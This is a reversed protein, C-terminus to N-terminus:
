KSQTFLPAGVVGQNIKFVGRPLGKAQPEFLDGAAQWFQTDAHYVALYDYGQILEPLKKDCTWVDGEFYKKGFSWCWGTAITNPLMAYYFMTRELGNTNQAVFYTKEGQKIHQKVETAFAEIDQRLTAASGVSQIQKLEKFFLTPAVLLVLLAVIFQNLRQKYIAKDDFISMYSAFTIVGLALVYTSLYREFSALRIGEYESFFVLYSFFLVGLYALGGAYLTVFMASMRSRTSPVHQRISLIALTMLLAVTLLISPGVVENFFSLKLYQPKTMRLLFELWTQEFRGSAIIASLKEILGVTEQRAGGIQSVYWSWSRQAALVLLLCGLSGAIVERVSSVPHGVVQLRKFLGLLTYLGWAILMLLLAIEKILILTALAATLGVWAIFSRDSNFALVVCAGFCIGLLADSYISSFSYEFYYLLVCSLLFTVAINIPRRVLSGAICLLGSLLWFSQAYLVNKETWGSLKTIYYQFLQQGPPYSKLFIPSDANFLANTEYIIKASSAWFSFEDWLLFQFRSDIALYWWVFPLLFLGGLAFTRVSCNQRARWWHLAEVIVLGFGAALIVWYGASLFGLLAAGYLVLTVTCCFLFPARYIGLGRQRSLFSIYGVTSLLLLILKM